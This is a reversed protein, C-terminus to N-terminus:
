IGYAIWDKIEEVAQSVRKNCPLTNAVISSTRYWNIAINYRTGSEIKKVAHLYMANTPFTVIDGARPKIAIDYEPFEIEGGAYNDNLYVMTSYEALFRPKPDLALGNSIYDDVCM